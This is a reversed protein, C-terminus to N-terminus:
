PQLFFCHRPKPTIEKIIVRLCRHMTFWIFMVHTHTTAGGEGGGHARYGLSLSVKTCFYFLLSKIYFTQNPWVLHVLLSLLKISYRSITCPSYYDMLISELALFVVLFYITMLISQLTKIKGFTQVFKWHTIIKEDQNNKFYEGSPHPPCSRYYGIFFKPLM